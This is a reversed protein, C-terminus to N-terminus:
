AEEWQKFWSSQQNIFRCCVRWRSWCCCTGRYCSITFQVTAVEYLFPFLSFNVLYNFWFFCFKFFSCNHISSFAVSEKTIKNIAVLGNQTGLKWLFLSFGWGRLVRGLYYIIPVQSQNWIQLKKPIRWTEKMRMKMRAEELLRPSRQLERRMMFKLILFLRTTPLSLPNKLNLLTLQNKLNQLELLNLLIMRTLLSM